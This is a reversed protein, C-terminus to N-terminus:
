GSSSRQSLQQRGSQAYVAPLAAEHVAVILASVVVGHTKVAPKSSPRKDNEMGM